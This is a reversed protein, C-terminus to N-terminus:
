PCRVCDVCLNPGVVGDCTLLVCNKKEGVLLQREGTDRRSVEKCKNGRQFGRYGVVHKARPTMKTVAGGPTFGRDLRLQEPSLPDPIQQRHTRLLMQPKTEATKKDTVIDEQIRPSHGQYGNVQSGALKWFPTAFMLALRALRSSLAQWHKTHVM